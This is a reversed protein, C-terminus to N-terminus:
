ILLAVTPWLRICSHQFCSVLGCFLVLALISFFFLKDFDFDEV